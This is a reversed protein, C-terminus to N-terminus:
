AEAEETRRRPDRGRATRVSDICFILIGIWIFCFGLLKMPPIPERFVFVSLLFTISPSIYQIFGVSIYSIRPVAEAFLLLPVATAIGAGIVLANAKADCGMFGADAFVSLYILALPLILLTEMMLGTYSHLKIRVKILGYLSFTLALVLSIWPVVGAQVSVVIVGALAFVCAVAGARSLRERLFLISLVFNLLPNIFYGLSAEAVHNHNVAFVYTFWNLSILLSAAFLRLAQGPNGFLGRVESAFVGRWGGVAAFLLLMFAPTWVIRYCIIDLSPLDDILRWYLVLFGWILYAGVAASVGWTRENNAQM